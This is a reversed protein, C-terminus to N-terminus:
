GQNKLDDFMKTMTPNNKTLKKISIEQAKDNAIRLQRESGMLSEKVKELHKITVDIEEIAKEFHRKALDYNKGFKDQFDLLSNEFNTIDINQERIKVLENRMDSSREAANKLITILTIFMQPRIVYMKEYRYSVDVIGTNYYESDMELLSVLVAYECKKEKRDKDLEKFFDENKHKTATTDNENKMEFMISIMENGNQDFDRYIYDGKSGTRADNDKEFYAKPFTSMRLKNFEEECHRELSEGVMKTSLRAKYDRYYAIEEDKKKIYESFRERLDKEKLAFEANKGNIDSKLEECKKELDAKIKTVALEKETDKNNLQSKLNNIEIEKDKKADEVAREKELKLANIKSNATELMKELEKTANSIALARNVREMEKQSTIKENLEKEFEKTRVQQVIDAYLSEDVQFVEGCNPCKIENLNAM